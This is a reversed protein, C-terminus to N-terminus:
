RSGGDISHGLVVGVMRAGEAERYGVGLYYGSGTPFDYDMWRRGVRVAFSADLEDGFSLSRAGDDRADAGALWTVRGRALVRLRGGLALELSAEVPFSAGDDMTGTAGSAGVGGVVGARSWRGLRLGVGMPFFAVDYAFGAPATAGAHLEIGIRYGLVDGGAQGRLRAGALGLGTAEGTATEDDYAHVYRAEYELSAAGRIDDVDDFGDAAAPAAARSVLVVLALAVCARM